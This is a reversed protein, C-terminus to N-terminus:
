INCRIAYYVYFVNLAHSVECVTPRKSRRYVRELTEVHVKKLRKQASWSNQMQHIPVKTTTKANIADRESALLVADEPKIVPQLIKLDPKDPLSASLMLLDPPPDRLLELVIARDLCLDAALNKIQM